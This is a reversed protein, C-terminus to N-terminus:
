RETPPKGPRGRHSARDRAARLSGLRDQLDVPRPQEVPQDTAPEAQQHSHGAASPAHPAAPARGRIVAAALEVDRTDWAIRRWGIDLLLVIAALLAAVDWWARTSLATGLGTRNFLDWAAAQDLRLM